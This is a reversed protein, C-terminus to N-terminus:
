TNAYEFQNLRAKIILYPDYLVEFSIIFPSDQKWTNMVCNLHNITQKKFDLSLYKMWIPSSSVINVTYLYQIYNLPCYSLLTIQETAKSHWQFLTSVYILRKYLGCNLYETVFNIFTHSERFIAVKTTWPCTKNIIGLCVGGGGDGILVATSM